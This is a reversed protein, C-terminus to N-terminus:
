RQLAGQRPEGHPDAPPTATETADLHAAIRSAVALAAMALLFLFMGSSTM